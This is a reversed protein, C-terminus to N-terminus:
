FISVSSCSDFWSLRSLITSVSEGVRTYDVPYELHLAVGLELGYWRSM